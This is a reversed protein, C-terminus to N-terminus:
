KTAVMSFISGQKNKVQRRRKKEPLVHMSKHAQGHESADLRGDEERRELMVVENRAFIDPLAEYTREDSLARFKEIGGLQEIMEPPPPSNVRKKGFVVNALRKTWFMGIDDRRDRCWGLAHSLSCFFRGRMWICNRKADWRQPIGIPTGRFPQLDYSCM